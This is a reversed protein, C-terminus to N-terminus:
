LKLFERLIQQWSLWSLFSFNGKCPCIDHKKLFFLLLINLFASSEDQKVLTEWARRKFFPHPAVWKTKALFINEM